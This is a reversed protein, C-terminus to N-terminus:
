KRSDPFQTNIVLTDITTLNCNADLKWDASIMTSVLATKEILLKNVDSLLKGNLEIKRVSSNLNRSRDVFDALKYFEIAPKTTILIVGEKAKEGYQKIAAKEKLITISEIHDPVLVISEMNTEFGNVLVLPNAPIGCTAVLRVSQEKTGQSWLKANCISVFGTLFLFIKKM